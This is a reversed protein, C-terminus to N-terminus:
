ASGSAGGRSAALLGAIRCRDGRGLRIGNKMFPHMCVASQQSGQVTRPRAGQATQRWPCHTPVGHRRRPVSASSRLGRVRAQPRPLQRSASRGAAAAVSAGRAHLPTSAPAGRLAEPPSYSSTASSSTAARSPRVRAVDTRLAWAISRSSGSNASSGASSSLGWSLDWSSLPPERHQRPRACSERRGM